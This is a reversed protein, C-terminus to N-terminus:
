VPQGSTNLSIPTRLVKVFKMPFCSLQFKNKSLTGPPFETVKNLFLSWWLFKGTFKAYDKLIDLKGLM